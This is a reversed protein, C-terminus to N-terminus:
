ARPRIMVLVPRTVHALVSQIVDRAPTTGGADLNACLELRHAGGQIAALADDLSEVAAEILIRMRRIEGPSPIPELRAHRRCAHSAFRKRRPCRDFDSRLWEGPIHYAASYARSRLPTREGAM